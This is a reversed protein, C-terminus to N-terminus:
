PNAKFVSGRCHRPPCFNKFKRTRTKLLQNRSGFCLKTMIPCTRDMKSWATEGSAPRIRKLTNHMQHPTSQVESPHDTNPATSRQDRTITDSQTANAPYDTTLVEIRMVRNSISQMKDRIQRLLSTDDRSHYRKNHKWKKHRHNSSSCSSM